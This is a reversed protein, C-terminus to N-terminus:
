HSDNKSEAEDAMKSAPDDAESGKIDRDEKRLKQNSMRQKQLIRILAYHARVKRNWDRGDSGSTSELYAKANERDRASRIARM